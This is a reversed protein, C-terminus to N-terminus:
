RGSLWFSPAESRRRRDLGARAVRDLDERYKLVTGLTAAAIEADTVAAPCVVYGQTDLSWLQQDTLAQPPSAM